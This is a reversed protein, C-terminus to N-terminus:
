LGTDEEFSRGGFDQARKVAVLGRTELRSPARPKKPFGRKYKRGERNKEDMMREAEAVEAARQVRRTRLLDAELPATIEYRQRYYKPPSMKKGRLVVEDAPFVDSEFKEIWGAGIGPRRSMTVYEPRRGRYHDDANVGFWKKVVYRAVYAASEFTVQGVTSFGLPWLESLLVSTYLNLSPESGRRFLVRDPFSFGFLICHYHPRGLQEGYEGCHFFRVKSPAVRKRLRKMFRQFESVDLSGDTPLHAPDYTLTLFCKEQHQSGEHVLRVAWQRSRELRCGICRGCPLALPLGTLAASTNFVIARKGSSLVEKGHYATLPTFCPM